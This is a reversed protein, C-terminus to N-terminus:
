SILIRTAVDTAPDVVLTKFFEITATGTLPIYKGTATAVIAGGADAIQGTTEILRSRAATVGASCTLKAGVRGPNRFRVNLEGAVCANRRSWIAAWVMAEDLVTALVGGHLLGEFGIHHPTPAFHTHIAGTAPDVHLSLHLGVPNSRGCVLCGPTHPLELSSM